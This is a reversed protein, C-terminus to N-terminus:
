KVHRAGKVGNCPSCMPQMNDLTDSGGDSLPNIHDHTILVPIGDEVGYLNLHPFEKGHNDGKHYELSFYTGELGCIRCKVGHKKFTQLRKSCVNVMYGKMEIKHAERKDDVAQILPIIEDVPYTVLSIARHPKDRLYKRKAQEQPDAPNYTNSDIWQLISNSIRSEHGDPDGSHEGMYMVAANILGWDKVNHIPCGHDRVSAVGKKARQLDNRITSCLTIARDKHIGKPLDLKDDKLSRLEKKLMNLLVDIADEHFGVYVTAKSM